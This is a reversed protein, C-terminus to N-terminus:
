DETNRSFFTVLGWVVAVGGVAAIAYYTFVTTLAETLSHEM